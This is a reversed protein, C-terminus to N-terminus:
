QLFRWSPYDFRHCGAAQFAQNVTATCDSITTKGAASNMATGVLAGFEDGVESDPNTITLNGEYTCNTMTNGYHLIGLLGGVDSTSGIVDIKVDCGSITINGEGMFGVLGGVYTRYEESEAKVYSGDGGTVDVNTINAYANKGFAGGVYSYGDIQILGTVNINTYKSTHPTGPWLALM